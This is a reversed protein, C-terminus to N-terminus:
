DNPTEEIAQVRGDPGYHVTKKKGGSAPLHIHIPGPTPAAPEAKKEEAKKEAPAENEKAAADKAKAIAAVSSPLPTPPAVPVGFDTQIASTLGMSVIDEGKLAVSIKAPEPHPPPPPPPPPPNFQYKEPSLDISKALDAILANIPGFDKTETAYQMFPGFLTQMMQHADAAMKERDPKRTDDAELRYDLCHIIEDPQVNQLAMQWAMAGLQGIIPVLDRSTLIMQAAMAEKKAVETLSDEIKAQMDDPRTDTNKQKIEAESASRFQKPSEGYLLSTLGVRRDFEASVLNIVELVDKNFGPHQLFQVVKNIETHMADLELITLDKGKEIQEKVGESASKAVAIFDRMTVPLKSALMSYAWNLFKLEGIGPKLHSMPWVQRPVQHFHLMTVPWGRNAWFPVPWQLKAKVEEDAASDIVEPPLNLPYPVGEALVLFCHDGYEELVERYQPTADRLRGGAGMRSYIKWYTILDNTGGQSRLWRRHDDPDYDQSSDWSESNPKLSGQKLGYEREVDWVAHICRRAIWMCGELREADPDLLLNDVSDYFSGIMTLGTPQKYAETWLCNHTLVGSALAYTHPDNEVAIDYFYDCRWDAPGIEVIEGLDRTWGNKSERTRIAGKYYRYTKGDKKTDQLVLTLRLGLRACIARLSNALAKNDCFSLRWIEEDEVWHGDSDLYGDLVSRLFKDSREWCSNKLHKEFCTGRSIYMRIIAALPPCSIMCNWGNGLNGGPKWIIDGGYSSVIRTLREHSDTEDKHSCIGFRHECDNDFFGDGLYLGLVWGIDDPVHEPNLYKDPEALRVHQLCDGVKLQNALRIGDKTPWIHDATCFIEQGSRLTLRLETWVRDLRRMDRVGNWNDGDWLRVGTKHSRFIDRVRYVGVEGDVEAYVETGGSLCGAGKIIAEDIAGRIDYLLGLEYPTFNLYDELLKARVANQQDKAQGIMGYQQWIQLAMPNAQIQPPPAVVSMLRPTITRHPNRQYLKPGFLQVMEAVKNASMRFTPSPVSSDVKMGLHHRNGDGYMWDYPGNFFKMCEIADDGFVRKKYDWAKKLKELWRVCIPKLPHEKAM